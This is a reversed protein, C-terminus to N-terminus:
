WWGSQRGAGAVLFFGLVLVFVGFALRLYQEAIDTALVAGLLAGAMTMLTLIVAAPPNVNGQRYYEVVAGLGVPALLAALSTGTAMRQDFGAFYVLAPVIVVGGGIGFIGSLVGGVLGILAFTFFASNTM